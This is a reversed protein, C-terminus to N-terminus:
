AGLIGKYANMVADVVSKEGSVEAIGDATLAQLTCQGTAVLAWDSFPLRIQMDSDAPAQALFEVAGNRIALGYGVGQDTFHILVTASLQEVGEPNFHNEMLKVITAPSSNAVTAPHMNTLPAKEPRQPAPIKGELECAETLLFNRTQIGSRTTQAMKRLVDAKLQKAETNDPEVSLAYSMLKAVLNYQKAAMAKRGRNIVADVGGFGEVIVEGMEQQTPPHLDATDTAWWGIVGLYIGRVIYEVDIYAPFLALNENVHKPLHIQQVLDDPSLGRNIGQLTQQFLFAYADRHLTALEYVNEKGSVPNGHCGILHEPCIERIKDIGEILNVPNRYEGGRLTYLPFMVPMIATNHQILDYEPFYSILSDPADAM